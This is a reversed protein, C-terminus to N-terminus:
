LGIVIVGLVIHRRTGRRRLHGRTRHRASGRSHSSGQNCFSSISETEPGLLDIHCRNLKLAILLVFFLLVVIIFLFIIIIILRSGNWTRLTMDRRVHKWEM